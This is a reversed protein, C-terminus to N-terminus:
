TLRGGDFRWTTSLVRMPGQVWLFGALWVLGYHPLFRSWFPVSGAAIGPLGASDIILWLVLGELVGAGLQFAAPWDRDWRLRQALIFVVDWALGFVLVYALVRFFVSRSVGPDDFLLTFVLTVPVGIAVLVFLRTQWRGPLTPTVADGGAGM